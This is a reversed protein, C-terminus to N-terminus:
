CKKITISGEGCGLDLVTDEETLILSNLLENKYDDRRNKKHFTKAVKDWDKKGENKEELKKAWFYAWDIDEPSKICENNKM